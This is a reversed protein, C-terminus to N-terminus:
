DDYYDEKRKLLKRLVYSSVLVISVYAFFGYAGYFFPYEEWRFFAHGPVFLDAVVLLACIIYFVVLLKKINQPKDFLHGENM